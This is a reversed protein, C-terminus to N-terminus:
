HVTSLMFLNLTQAKAQTVKNIVPTAETVHKGFFLELQKLLDGNYTNCKKKKNSVKFGM